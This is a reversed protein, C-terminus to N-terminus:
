KTSEALEEVITWFHVEYEKGNALVEVSIKKRQYRYESKVVKRIFTIKGQDNTITQEEEIIDYGTQGLSVIKTIKDEKSQPSTSIQEATEEKKEESKVDYKQTYSFHFSDKSNPDIRLLVSSGPAGDYSFSIPLVIKGDETEFIPVSKETKVGPWTVGAINDLKFHATYLKTKSDVFAISSEGATFKIDITKEEQPLLTFTGERITEDDLKVAYHYSSKDGEHSVVTFAFSEEEGVRIKDPLQEQNEFYLESFNENVPAYRFILFGVIAVGTICMAIIIYVTTRKGNM